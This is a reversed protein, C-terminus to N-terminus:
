ENWNSTIALIGWFAKIGEQQQRLQDKEKLTHEVIQLLKVLSKHTDFVPQRPPGSMKGLELGPAEDRSPLRTGAIFRFKGKLPKWIGYTNVIGAWVRQFDKLLTLSM